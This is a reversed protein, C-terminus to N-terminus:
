GGGGRRRGEEEGGGRMRSISDLDQVLNRVLDGLVLIGQGLLLSGVRSLGDELCLPVNVIHGSAELVV